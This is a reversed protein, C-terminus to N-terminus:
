NGQKAATGDLVLLVDGQNVLEGEIVNIKSVIGGELHQISQIHQSPIVEGQSIAIEEVETFGAWFIMLIVVISVIVLTVRVMHPAVSEEILVSQSLYRLQDAKNYNSKKRYFIRKFFDFSKLWIKRLFVLLRLWKLM